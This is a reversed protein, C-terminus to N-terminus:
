QPRPRTPKSTPATPVATPRPVSDPRSREFFPKPTTPQSRSPPAANDCGYKVGVSVLGVLGVGLCLAWTPVEAVGRGAM